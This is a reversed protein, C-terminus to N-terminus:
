GYRVLVIEEDGAQENYAPLSKTSIQSPRRRRRRRPPRAPADAGNGPAPTQNQTTTAANGTRTSTNNNNTNTASTNRVQNILERTRKRRKWWGWALLMSAFVVALVVPVQTYRNTLKSCSFLYACVIIKPSAQNAESRKGFTRPVHYEPVAPLANGQPLCLAIVWWATSLLM